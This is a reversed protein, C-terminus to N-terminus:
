DDDSIIMCDDDCDILNDARGLLATNIDYQRNVNKQEIEFSINVFKAQPPNVDYKFSVNSCEPLLYICETDEIMESWWCTSYERISSLEIETDGSFSCIQLCDRGSGCVIYVLENINIKRDNNNDNVWLAIDENSGWCVLNSHKIIDRIRLTTLRIQAQKMSTDNTAESASGLAFSLTAVSTLLISTIVMAVLLEVLTFGKKIKSNNM